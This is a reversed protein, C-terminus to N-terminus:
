GLVVQNKECWSFLVILGWISSWLIPKSGASFASTLEQVGGPRFGIDTALKENRLVAQVVSYFDKDRLWENFPFNFGQKSRLPYTEGLYPKVVTWEFPKNPAGQCRQRGPVQWVSEVFDHDTFPARLELSVAMSMADADRLCREALLLRLAVRSVTNMASDNRDEELLCDVFERPLGFWTSTQFRGVEDHLISRRTWSPFQMTAVQYAALIDLTSSDRHGVTSFLEATKAPGACLTPHRNLWQMVLGSLTPTVHGALRALLSLRPILRFFPYGGFVEDAGNGSLAVTLGGEHAARAVYYTNVGDFTPQDMAALADPLWRKFEEKRLRVATHKTGFHQAVWEASSSEDYDAEDFTVSFTRVDREFRSMLAVITSSDLGGSLFAGLPVDSLLRLKVAEELKNRMEAVANGTSRGSSTGIALSWYRHSELIEGGLGVRMWHGPMLSYIGEIMTIPSVLFGNFLFVELATPSLHRPMLGSAMLARVESAFAFIGAPSAYYYLPKKGLRDRALFVEQHAQDWIAIAFMGKFRKVCDPGWRGYAKLVVETDTASRFREGASELESRLQSFNYVEGNYTIWNGSEFDGMPMHGAPSLDLISLRTSGLTLGGSGSTVSQIGSDNPGRHRLQEIMRAVYTSQDGQGVIGAIGCM